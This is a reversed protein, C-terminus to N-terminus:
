EWGMWADDQMFIDAELAPVNPWMMGYMNSMQTQPSEDIPTLGRIFEEAQAADKETQVPAEPQLFQACLGDIVQRCRTASSNYPTLSQM